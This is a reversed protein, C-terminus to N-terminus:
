RGREAAAIERMVDLAQQQMGELHPHAIVDETVAKANAFDGSRALGEAFALSYDDRAPVARHVRRLYELGRPPDRGTVDDLIGGMYLANLLDGRVALVRDLAALATLRDPGEAPVGNAFIDAATMYAEFWDPARSLTAHPQESISAESMGFAARFSAPDLQSARAFHARAHDKDGLAIMVEGFLTERASETLDAQTARVEGIPTSMVYHRSALVPRQVYLHLAGFVDDNAFAEAWADSQPMGDLVREVYGALRTSRDPTGQLLLHVLAWSEAYFVSRRANENYQPSSRSTALLAPLPLWADRRLTQLHSDIPRGVLVSRGKDDVQFSSYYEALGEDLWLPIGPSTNRIVLHTYEHFLSRLDDDGHPPGLLIYNISAQSAYLGGVNVTTGHYRPRFPEFTTENPFAIVVTPVPSSVATQSLLHTLAERFGEFEAGINALQRESSAGIVIFNPTDVRIWRPEAFAPAVVAALSLVVFIARALRM